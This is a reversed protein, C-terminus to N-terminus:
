GTRRWLGSELSTSTSLLAPTWCFSADATERRYAFYEDLSVKGNTQMAVLLTKAAIYVKSRRDYLDHLLRIDAIRKQQWSIYVGAVAIVSGLLWTLWAQPDSM